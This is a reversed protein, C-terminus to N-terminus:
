SAKASLTQLAVGTIPWLFLLTLPALLWLTLDESSYLHPTLFWLLGQYLFFFPILTLAQQILTFLRFRLRFRLILFLILSFLLAHAGLLSQSLTDYILGLIFASPIFTKSLNDSSWYIVTLLTIPPLWYFYQSTILMADLTIALLYSGIILPNSPTQTATAHTSTNM